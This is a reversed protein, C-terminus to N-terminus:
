ALEYKAAYTDLAARDGDRLLDLVAARLERLHDALEDAHAGCHVCEVWRLRHHPWGGGQGCIPCDLRLPPDYRQAPPERLIRRVEAAVQESSDFEGAKVRRIMDPQDGPELRAIQRLRSYNVAPDQNEPPVRRAVSMRQRYTWYSLDSDEMLEEVWDDGFAEQAHVLANGMAIQTAKRVAHLHIWLAMFEDRGPAGRVLLQGRDDVLYHERLGGPLVLLTCGAAASQWDDAVAWEQVKYLARTETM